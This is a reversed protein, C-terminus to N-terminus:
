HSRPRRASAALQVLRIPLFMVRPRPRTELQGSELSLPEFGFQAYFAEADWKADVVIGVCGVRDVMDLALMLVHHLLASGIGSGRAQEATALRALRLVPLPYAPLAKRDRAPLAEAEIAGAAVTAFGLITEGEVAVWTAGLHHRFQNQGAFRSFFRDLDPETSHFSSRDDEPRLPRIQM